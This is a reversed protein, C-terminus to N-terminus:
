KWQMEYECCSLGLHRCKVEKVKIEKGGLCQIAAEFYGALFLCYSKDPNDFDVIKSKVHGNDVKEITIAGSNHMQRWIISAKECFDQPQCDQLLSGFMGSFTKQCVYKGIEKYIEQNNQTLSNASKLLHNMIEQPYWQATRIDQALINQYKQPFQQYASRYGDTGKHEKLYSIVAEILIGKISSM